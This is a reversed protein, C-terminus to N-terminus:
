LYIKDEELQKLKNLFIKKLFLNLGVLLASIVLIQFVYLFFTTFDFSSGEKFFISSIGVIGGALLSITAGIVLSEEENTMMYVIFTGLFGILALMKELNGSLYDQIGLFPTPEAGFLFTGLLILIVIHKM